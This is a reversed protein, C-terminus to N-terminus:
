EVLYRGVIMMRDLRDIADFGGFRPIQEILVRHLEPELAHM